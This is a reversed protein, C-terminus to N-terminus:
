LSIRPELLAESLGAGGVQFTLGFAAGNEGRSLTSWVGTFAGTVIGGEQVASPKKSFPPKRFTQSATALM